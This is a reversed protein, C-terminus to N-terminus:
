YGICSTDIENNAEFDANIEFCFPIKHFVLKWYKHSENLTKSATIEQKKRRQEDKIRTNQSSCCSLCRRCVFKCGHKGSSVHLKEINIFQNKYIM